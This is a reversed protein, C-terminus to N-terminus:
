LSLGGREVAVYYVRGAGEDVHPPSMQAYGSERCDVLKRARTWPTTGVEPLEPMDSVLPQRIAELAGSVEDQSTFLMEYDDSQVAALVADLRAMREPWEPRPVSEHSRSSVDGWVSYRLFSPAIAAHVVNYAIERNDMMADFLAAHERRRDASQPLVEIADLGAQYMLAREASTGWERDGLTEQMQRSVRRFADAAAGEPLDAMRQQAWLRGAHGYVRVVPHRHGAMREFMNLMRAFHKGELQWQSIGQAPPYCSMQETRVMLRVLLRNVSNAHDKFLDYEAALSLWGEVHQLTDDVWQDATACIMENQFLVMSALFLTYQQFTEQDTVRARHATAQRNVLARFRDQLEVLLPATHDDFNSEAVFALKEFYAYFRGYSARPRTPITKPPFEGALLAHVDLARMGLSIVRELDEPSVREIPGRYRFYDPNLIQWGYELLCRMLRGQIAKRDPDLVYAAEMAETAARLRQHGYAHLSEARYQEAEARRDAVAASCGSELYQCVEASLADILEPLQGDWLPREFYALPQNTADVLRLALMPAESGPARSLELEGLILSPEVAGDQRHGLLQWEEGMRGLRQREVISLRESHNLRRELLRAIGQLTTDYSRPLDRNRASLLGFTTVRVGAPTRKALAATIRAALYDPIDERAMDPLTEDWFRLSTAADFVSLGLVNGGDDAGIFAFVDAGIIEGSQVTFDVPSMGALSLSQEAMIRNIERRDVVILGAAGTLRAETLALVGETHEHHDECILAIRVGADGAAGAAAGTAMLWVAMLATGM